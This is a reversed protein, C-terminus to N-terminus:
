ASSPMRSLLGDRPSPSTYLLCNPPRRPAFRRPRQQPHLCPSRPRYSALIALCALALCALWALSPHHMFGQTGLGPPRRRNKRWFFLLGWFKSMGAQDFKTLNQDNKSLFQGFINRARSTQPLKPWPGAQLRFGQNEKPKELDPASFM